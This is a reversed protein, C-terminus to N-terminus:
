LETGPLGSLVTGAFVNVRFENFPIVPSRRDNWFYSQSDLLGQDLTRDIEVTLQMQPSGCLLLPLLDAFQDPPLYLHVVYRDPPHVALAGRHIGLDIFDFHGPYLGAYSRDPHSDFVALHGSLEPLTRDVSEVRTPTSTSLSAYVGRSMSGPAYFNAYPRIESIIFVPDYGIAPGDTVRWDGLDNEIM